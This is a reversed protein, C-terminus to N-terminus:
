LLADTGIVCSKGNKDLEFILDLLGCKGPAGVHMARPEALYPRLERNQSFEKM